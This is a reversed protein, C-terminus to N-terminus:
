SYRPVHNRQLECLEWVTFVNRAERSTRTCDSRQSPPWLADGEPPIIWWEGLGQQSAWCDISRIGRSTGMPDMTSSYITVNVMLIGGINAYIGYMSGIPHPIDPPSKWVSKKPSQSPSQPEYLLESRVFDALCASDSHLKPKGYIAHSTPIILNSQLHHQLIQPIFPSVLHYFSCPDSRENLMRVSRVQLIM